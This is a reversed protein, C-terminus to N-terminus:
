VLLVILPHMTVGAGSPVMSVLGKPVLKNRSMNPRQKSMRGRPELRTRFRGDTLVRRGDLVSEVLM